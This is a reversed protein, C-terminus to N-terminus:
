NWFQTHQWVTNATNKATCTETKVTIWRRHLHSNELLLVNRITADWHRANNFYWISCRPWEFDTSLCSRQRCLKVANLQLVESPWLFTDLVIFKHSLHFICKNEVCCHCGKIWRDTQLHANIPMWHCQFKSAHTSTYGVLPLDLFNQYPHYISTKLM